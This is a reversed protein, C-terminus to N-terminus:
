AAPVVADLEPKDETAFGVTFSAATNDNPLITNPGTSRVPWVECRKTAVDGYPMRVLFGAQGDPVANRAVSTADDEWFTLTPDESAKIGPVKKPFDSAYDPVEAMQGAASFGSTDTLYPTLDTGATIEARTPAALNAVAPVFYFKVGKVRPVYRSM